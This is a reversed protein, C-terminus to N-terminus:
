NNTSVTTNTSTTNDNTESSYGVYQQWPSANTFMSGFISYLPTPNEQENKFTRPIYRYKIIPPPCQQNTKVYGMIMFTIGILMIMLVLAKM